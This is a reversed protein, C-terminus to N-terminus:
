NCELQDYSIIPDKQDLGLFIKRTPSLNINLIQVNGRTYIQIAKFHANSSSSTDLFFIGM